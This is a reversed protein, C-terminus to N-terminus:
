RSLEPRVAAEVAPPSPAPNERGFRLIRAGNIVVALVALSQALAGALSDLVGTAALPILVVAVGFALWVNQGIIRRTTVQFRSGSGSGSPVPRSRSSSSGRRTRGSSLMNISLTL